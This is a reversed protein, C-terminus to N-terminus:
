FYNIRFFISNNVKNLHPNIQQPCHRVFIEFVLICAEILEDDPTQLFKDNMQMISHIYPAIRMGSHKCIATLCNFYVKANNPNAINLSKLIYDIIEDFLQDSCTITMGALCNISRKTISNRQNSLNPLLSAKLSPYTKQLTTGFRIIM